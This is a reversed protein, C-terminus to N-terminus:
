NNNAKNQLLLVENVQFSVSHYCIHTSWRNECKKLESKHTCIDKAKNM